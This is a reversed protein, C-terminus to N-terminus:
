KIGLYMNKVNECMSKESFVSSQLVSAREILSNRLVSDSKLLEINRSLEQDDGPSFLMGTVGHEIVEPIGDTNSAIIAVGSSMAELLVMPLGEGYLSPIVFIDSDTIQYAIDKKFGHIIFKNPLNSLSILREVEAQYSSTEFQGYVDVLINEKVNDPLNSIARILVEIGKRPRILGVFAIRFNENDKEKVAGDYVLVGNYLVDLKKAGSFHPSKNKVSLSVCLIKDLDRNIFFKELLFKIKNKIPQETDEVVPSHAHYFFSFRPLFVGLLKALFLTIPSHAHIIDPKILRLKRLVGFFGLKPFELIEINDGLSSKEIFVGQKYILLIIEFRSDSVLSTLIYEQVREAGAYHEGNIIHLIKLKRVM